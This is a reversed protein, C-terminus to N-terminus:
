FLINTTFKFINKNYDYIIDSLMRKYQYDLDFNLWRRMNYRIGFKFELMNEHRSHYISKPYSRESFRPYFRVSIANNFALTHNIGFYFMNEIYYDQDSYSSEWTTRLFRLSFNTLKSFKYFLEGSTTASKFDIGYKRDEYRYGIGVIGTLKPALNGNLGFNLEKYNFDRSTDYRYDSFGYKFSSFFRTKPAIRLGMDVGFNHFIYDREYSYKSEYDYLEFKYNFGFFLRNFRRRLGIQFSERWYTSLEPESLGLEKFPILDRLLTNTFILDYRGLKNEIEFNFDMSQNNNKYNHL